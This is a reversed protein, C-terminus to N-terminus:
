RQLLEMGTEVMLSFFFYDNQTHARVHVCSYVPACMFALLPHQTVEMIERQRIGKSYSGESFGSSAGKSNAPLCGVM